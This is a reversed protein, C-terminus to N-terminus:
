PQDEGLRDVAAQADARLEAIEEDSIDRGEAIAQAVMARFKASSASLRIAIDMASILRNVLILSDSM